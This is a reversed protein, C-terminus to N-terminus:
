RGILMGGYNLVVTWVLWVGLSVSIGKGTSVSWLKSLGIGVVAYQWLTFLNVSNLFMHTKNLPDVEGIFLTLNAGAYISEMAVVFVMGILSSVAMIFMGLGYVECIKMYPATSKFALKGIVWYVLSFGFLSAFVVLVMMVSGFIMWMPSGPKPMFEVAREMQEQTMQGDAVQKQMAKLQNDHMQDQIPAQNFVVFMFLVMMLLTGVAPLGWNSSKPESSVIQQYAESPSSLISVFKDSWSMEVTAEPTRIEEPM